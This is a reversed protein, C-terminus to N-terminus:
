FSCGWCKQCGESKVRSKGHLPKESRSLILDKVPVLHIRGSQEELVMLDDKSERIIGAENKFGFLQSSDKGAM